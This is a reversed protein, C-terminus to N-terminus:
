FSLLWSPALGLVISLIALGALVGGALRPEFATDPLTEASGLWVRHIARVYYLLALVTALAMALALWVGGFAVGSLYLRWRGAFGIMPPVGIMGLSALIFAFGSLPFRSALGHDELTLTHGLGHEATGVAGFLIVKFIAHAMAGLMAGTLGIESGVIVGLLLYGMDDITSFALLRRLNTQGLALLAGGFMSLLAVAMWVGAHEAFAWPMVERFHVLETFAAIDVLSVILGVSMPSASEAVCPLWFYVPLLALKFAFGALLLWVVVREMPGAPQGAAGLGEALLLCVVAAAVMGLYIWAARKAEPNQDVFVLGVAAFAAADILLTRIIGEGTLAGAITLAIVLLAMAWWRKGGQPIVFSYLIIVAALVIFLGGFRVNWNSSLEVLADM